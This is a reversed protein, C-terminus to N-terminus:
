RGGSIYEYPRVEVEASAIIRGSRVEKDLLLMVYNAAVEETPADVVIDTRVIHRPM